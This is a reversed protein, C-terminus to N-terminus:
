GASSKGFSVEREVVYKVMANEKSSNIYREKM